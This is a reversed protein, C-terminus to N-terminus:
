KGLKLSVIFTTAVDKHLYLPISLNFNNSAVTPIEVLVAIDEHEIPSNFADTIKLINEESLFYDSKISSIVKKADVFLIKNKRAPKKNKNLIVVCSEMTSNYFLSPGLGIVAEVIDSEIV